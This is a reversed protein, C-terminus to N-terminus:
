WDTTYQRYHTEPVKELWSWFDFCIDSFGVEERGSFVALNVDPHFVFRKRDPYRGYRLPKWGNRICSEADAKEEKELQRIVAEVEGQKRALLETNQSLYKM